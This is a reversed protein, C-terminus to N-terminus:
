IADDEFYDPDLEEENGCAGCQAYTVAYQRFFTHLTDKECAPCNFDAEWDTWSPPELYSDFNM